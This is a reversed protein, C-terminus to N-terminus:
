NAGGSAKTAAATTEVLQDLQATCGKAILASAMGQVDPKPEGSLTMRIEVPAATGTTLRYRAGEAIPLASPWAQVAQGPSWDVTAKSAGTVSAIMTKAPAESGPRWLNAAAPNAVCVTGARSADVFWINPPRGTDSEVGRVAGIRVRRDGRQSVLAAIATNGGDADAAATATATFSGPGRLTRTGHEDLLTVLDNAKLALKATPQLVKGPPYAGASPGASRVVLTAASLPAAIAAALLAM